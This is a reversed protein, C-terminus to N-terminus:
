VMHKQAALGPKKGSPKSTTRKVTGTGGKGAACPKSPKGALKAATAKKLRGKCQKLQSLAWTLAVRPMAALANCQLSCTKAVYSCLDPFLQRAVSPKASTKTQKDAPKPAAAASPKPPAASPPSALASSAAASAVIGHACRSSTSLRPARARLWHHHVACSQAVGRRRARATRGVVRTCPSPASARAKNTRRMRQRARARRAQSRAGALMYAASLAELVSLASWDVLRGPRATSATTTREHEDHVAATSRTVSRARVCSAYMVPLRDRGTAPRQCPWHRRPPDLSGGLRRYAATRSAGEANASRAIAVVAARLHQRRGCASGGDVHCRRAPKGGAPSCPHAPFRLRRHRRHAPDRCAARRRTRTLSGARQTEALLEVLAITATIARRMPGAAAKATVKTASQRGKARLSERTSPVKPLATAPPAAAAAQASANQPLGDCTLPAGKADTCKSTRALLPTPEVSRAAYAHGEELAAAVDAYIAAAAEDAKEGEGGYENDDDEDAADSAEDAAYEHTCSAAEDIVMM